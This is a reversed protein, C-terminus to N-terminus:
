FHKGKISLITNLFQITEINVNWDWRFTIGITTLTMILLSEMLSEMDDNGGTKMFFTSYLQLLFFAVNVLLSLRQMYKKFYSDTNVVVMQKEMSWTFPLCIFRTCNNLCLKLNPIIINPLLLPKSVKQNEM